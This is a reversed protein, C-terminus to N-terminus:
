NPPKARRVKPTTLTTEFANIGRQSKRLLEKLRKLEDNDAWLIWNKQILTRRAHVWGRRAWDRLKNHSM